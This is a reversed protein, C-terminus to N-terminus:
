VTVGPVADPTILGALVTKVTVGSFTTALEVADEANLTLKAIESVKVTEAVVGVGPTTLNWTLTAPASNISMAAHGSTVTFGDPPTATAAMQEHNLGVRPSRTMLDVKVGVSKDLFETSTCDKLTKITGLGEIVLKVKRPWVPTVLPVTPDTTTIVPARNWPTFSMLNLPTLAALPLKLAVEVWIVTVTGAPAVVPGIVTAM